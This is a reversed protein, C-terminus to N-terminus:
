LTAIIWRFSFKWELYLPYIFSILLDYLANSTSSDFDYLLYCASYYAYAM